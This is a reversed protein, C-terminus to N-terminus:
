MVGSGPLPNVKRRLLRAIAWGEFPMRLRGKRKRGQSSGMVRRFPRRTRRCQPRGEPTCDPGQCMPSAQTVWRRTWRHGLHCTTWCITTRETIPFTIGSIASAGATDEKTPTRARKNPDSKGPSPGWKTVAEKEMRCRTLQRVNTSPKALPSQSTRKAPLGMPM